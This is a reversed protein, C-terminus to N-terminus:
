DNSPPASMVERVEIPIRLPTGGPGPAMSARAALEHARRPSEVDVIWYGALFEKGEAFPGDTIEPEGDGKARVLRAQGPPALGEAGVLEGAEHLEAAFRRMFDVHAQFDGPPWDLVSYEGNGRPTHMMMMFKM